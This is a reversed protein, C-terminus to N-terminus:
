EKPQLVQKEDKSKMKDSAVKAGAILALLTVTVAATNRAPHHDDGPAPAKTDTSTAVEKPKGDGGVPIAGGYALCICSQFFLLSGFVLSVAHV